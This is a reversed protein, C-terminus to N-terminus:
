KKVFKVRNTVGATGEKSSQYFKMNKDDIKEINYKTGDKSVLKINEKTSNKDLKAGEVITGNEDKISWKSDKEEFKYTVKWDSSYWSGKLWDTSVKEKKTGCAVLSISLVLLLLISFLKKM